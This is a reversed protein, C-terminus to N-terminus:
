KELAIRPKYGDKRRQPMDNACVATGIVKPKKGAGVTFLLM